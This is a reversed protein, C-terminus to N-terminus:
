GLYKGIWNELGRSFVMNGSHTIVAIVHLPVRKNGLRLYAMPFRHYVCRMNRIPDKYPHKSAFLFGTFSAQWYECRQILGGGIFFPSDVYFSPLPALHFAGSSMQDRQM